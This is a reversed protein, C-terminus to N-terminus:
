LTKILAKIEALIMATAGWVIHNKLYFAPVEKTQDLSTRVAFVGESDDSLIDKLPVEIIESVEKEEKTFYLMQKSVGLFPHVYFNSPPIFIESLPRLVDISTPPVGVEEHTERLATYLLDPDTADNQGGPFSVQQSHVGPYKQRLIFVLQMQHQSDPYMLALVSAKKSSQMQKKYHHIMKSRGPPAMRLQEDLGPLPINTIKTINEIFFEFHM